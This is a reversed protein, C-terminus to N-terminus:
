APNADSPSRAATRSARDPCQALLAATAFLPLAYLPLLLWLDATEVLAAGLALGLVNPAFVLTNAAASARGLLAEPTERQVATFVAILACPLGLGAVAGAALAVPASPVTRAAVAVATLAIGAAAFRHGGLRALLPGAAVGIVVSGVGQAAYLVGAYAPARGLRDVVAYVTAGNLAALVMTTGAAMVLPRLAPHGWVHRLGLAIGAEAEVADEPHAARAPHRERVRLLACLGAALVFTAADLLAVAPGGYVTYLGAGALPALLKMGERATMRLGNFAGLLEPDVAAGVLASEAADHVADAAGYLFLVAFLLWLRAPSDVATLPLLLAALFLDTTIMLPRRRVRDALAGLAPGALTPAWLAFVCLAALGDSGTIDKVWVGSALWLASSGFGSVVTTALCLGAARDRLVRRVTSTSLTTM